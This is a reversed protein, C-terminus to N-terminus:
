DWLLGAFHVEWSENLWAQLSQFFHEEERYPVRKRGEERLFSAVTMFIRYEYRQPVSSTVDVKGLVHLPSELLTKVPLPEKAHVPVAANMVVTRQYDEAMVDGGTDSGARKAPEM